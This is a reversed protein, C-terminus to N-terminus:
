WLILHEIDIKIDEFAADNALKRPSSCSKRCKLDLFLV